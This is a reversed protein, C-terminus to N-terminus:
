LLCLQVEDITARLKFQETKYFEEQSKMLEINFRADSLEQAITKAKEQEMIIATEKHAIVKSKEAVDKKM